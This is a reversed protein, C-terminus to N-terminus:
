GGLGQLLSDVEDQSAIVEGDLGAVAPGGPRTDVEPAKRRLPTVGARRLLEHLQEEVSVILGTVRTVVQGTLDHGAQGCRIESMLRRLEVLALDPEGPLAERSGREIRQCCREAEDLLDLTRHAADGTVTVLHALRDRLEPMDQGVIGPLSDLRRLETMARELEISLRAIGHLLGSDAHAAVARLSDGLTEPDGADLAALAGLLAGRLEGSAIPSVAAM